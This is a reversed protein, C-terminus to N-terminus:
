ESLEPLGPPLDLPLDLEPLGPPLDVGGLLCRTALLPVLKPKTKVRQCVFTQSTLNLAFTADKQRICLLFVETILM